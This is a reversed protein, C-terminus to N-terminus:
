PSLVNASFCYLMIEYYKNEEKVDAIFAKKITYCLTLLINSFFFDFIKKYKVNFLFFM